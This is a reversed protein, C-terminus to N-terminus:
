DPSKKDDSIWRRRNRLCFDIFKQEKIAFRLPLPLRGHIQALLFGMKQDDRVFDGAKMQAQDAARNIQSELGDLYPKLKQELDDKLNKLM